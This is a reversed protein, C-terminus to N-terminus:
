EIPKSIKSLNDQSYDGAIRAHIFTGVIRDSVSRAQILTGVIGDSVSRAQILTGM